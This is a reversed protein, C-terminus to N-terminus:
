SLSSVGSRQWDPQRGPRLIIRLDVSHYHIILAFRSEMRRLKIAPTADSQYTSLQNGQQRPAPSAAVALGTPRKVLASRGNLQQGGKGFWLM